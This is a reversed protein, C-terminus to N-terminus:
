PAGEKGAAHSTQPQALVDAYLELDDRLLRAALFERRVRERGARGRAARLQADDLLTAIARACREVDGVVVGGEDEGIQM